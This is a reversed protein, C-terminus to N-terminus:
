KLSITGSLLNRCLLQVGETNGQNVLSVVTVFWVKLSSIYGCFYPPKQKSHKCFFKKCTLPCIVSLSSFKIRQLWLLWQFTHFEPISFLAVLLVRFGPHNCSAQQSTQRCKSVLKGNSTGQKRQKFFFLQIWVLYIPVTSLRIMCNKHLFSINRLSFQYKFSYLGNAYVPM